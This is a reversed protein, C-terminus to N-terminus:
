RVRQKAILTDIFGSTWGLGKQNSFDMLLAKPSLRMTDAMAGVYVPNFRDIPNQFLTDTLAFKEFVPNYIEATKNRKWIGAVITQSTTQTPTTDTQAGCLKVAIIFLIALISKKM